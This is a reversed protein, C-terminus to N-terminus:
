EAPVAVTLVAPRTSHVPSISAEVQQDSVSGKRAYCIYGLVLAAILFFAGATVSVAIIVTSDDDDDDGGGSGPCTYFDKPFKANSTTGGYTYVYACDEQVDSVYIQGNLVLAYNQSATVLPAATVEVLYTGASALPIDVREVNNVNDQDGNGWYEVGSPSVVRLDLDNMIQKTSAISGSPPDMWVLTARLPQDSAGHVTTIYTRKLCDAQLGYDSGQVTDDIYMTANTEFDINPIVNKLDVRGFGEVINPTSAVIPCNVRAVLDDGSAVLLAKVLAASPNTLNSSTNYAPLYGNHAPDAMSSMAAVYPLFLGLRFYHRLLLVTGAVGPTAMSTGAMIEEACSETTTDGGSHASITWYGPAVVDPKIRGDYTPGMSSFSALNRFNATVRDPGGETAGVTIVNKCSGPSGVSYDGDAGENGAAFVISFDAHDYVYQDIDLDGAQYYGMTAAGWSDSHARAGADYYAADFMATYDSPTDLYQGGAGIDFFAVKAAPATGKNDPVTTYAPIVSTVDVTGQYYVTSVGGNIAEWGDNPNGLVTGVCHTGHGGVEDSDDAYAIYQVVKRQGPDTTITGGLYQSKSTKTVPGSPDLFYCSYMDLGSDAVGAVEGSGNVGIAWLPRETGNTSGTQMIQTSLFNTTKMLPKPAVSTVLPHSALFQVLAMWCVDRDASQDAVRELGAVEVTAWHRDGRQSSRRAVTSSLSSFKCNSAVTEAKSAGVARFRPTDAFGSSAERLDRPTLSQVQALWARPDPARQAGQFRVVFAPHPHEHLDTLSLELDGSPSDHAPSASSTASAPAGGGNAFAFPPPIPRGGGDVRRSSRFITPSLKASPPVPASLFLVPNPGVLLEAATGSDAVFFFCARDHEWSTFVPQGGLKALEKAAVYGQALPSCGIHLAENTEARVAAQHVLEDWAGANGGLLDPVATNLALSLDEISLSGYGRTEASRVPGVLLCVLVATAAQM